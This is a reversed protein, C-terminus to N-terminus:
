FSVRAFTTWGWSRIDDGGVGESLFRYEMGTGIV